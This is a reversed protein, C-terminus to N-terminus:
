KLAEGALLTDCMAQLEGVTMVFHQNPKTVLSTDEWFKEIRYRLEEVDEKTLPEDKISTFDNRKM